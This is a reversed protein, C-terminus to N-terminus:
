FYTAPPSLGARSTKLITCAKVEWTEIWSLSLRYLSNRLNSEFIRIITVVVVHSRVIHQAHRFLLHYSAFCVNEQWESDLTRYVLGLPHQMGVLSSSVLAWSFWNGDSPAVFVAPCSVNEVVNVTIHLRFAIYAALNTLQDDFDLGRISYISTRACRRSNFM